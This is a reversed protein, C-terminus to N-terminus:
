IYQLLYKTFIKTTLVSIHAEYMRVNCKSSQVKIANRKNKKSLAGLLAVEM